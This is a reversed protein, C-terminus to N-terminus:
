LELDDSHQIDSIMELLVTNAKMIVDGQNPDYALCSKFGAFLTELQGLFTATSYGSALANSMDELGEM